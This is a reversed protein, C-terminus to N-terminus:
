QLAHAARIGLWLCPKILRRDQAWRFILKPERLFLDFTRSSTGCQM